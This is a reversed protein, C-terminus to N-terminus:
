MEGLPETPIILATLNWTSPTAQADGVRYRVVCMNSIQTSGDIKRFVTTQNNIPNLDTNYQYSEEGENKNIILSIEVGSSALAILKCDEKIGGVRGLGWPASPKSEVYAQFATGADDVAPSDCKWVQTSQSYGIYPKLMKGMSAGVVDSFLCSCYAKTSEGVHQSWGFRVAATGIESVDVVKGLFTDYVVRINPTASGDVAINFWVQHLNPYAVAHVPTVAALNVRAVIDSIDQAIYQQGGAGARCPGDVSWWYTSPSGTADKAIVISKHHVCGAGSSVLYKSYPTDASDTSTFKWQSRYSFALFTGNVPDSLGTLAEEIDTYSRIGANINSVREDDGQDSSGLPSTYWIRHTIPTLSDGATAENAGGMILLGRDAILYKASPPPTHAGRDPPTGGNYSAPAASDDYTTTGVIVSAIFNYFSDDPSGYIDWHTEHESIAVPKTVRASASSGSPTFSVSPSLEGERIIVGAVKVSYRVKYYRLTAAYSGSGFNAVTPAAAPAVGVRRVLGDAPDYVHLRNIGSKYAFYLKGNLTAFDITDTATIADDLSVDAWATGGVLRKVHFDGDVGWFEAATELDGPVFRGLARIGNSFATGGVLSLVEAGGRKRALTSRYWDVNYAEICHGELLALATDFGNRGRLGFLASHGDMVQQGNQTTFSQAQIPIM